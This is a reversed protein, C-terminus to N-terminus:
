RQSEHDCLNNPWIIFFGSFVQLLVFQVWTVTQCQNKQFTSSNTVQYPVWDFFPLAVEPERQRM